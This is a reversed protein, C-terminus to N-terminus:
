NHDSSNEKRDSYDFYLPRLRNDDCVVRVLEERPLLYTNFTDLNLVILKSDICCSTVVCRLHGLGIEQGQTLSGLEVLDKYYLPAIM